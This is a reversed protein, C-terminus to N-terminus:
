FILFFTCPEDGMSYSTTNNSVLALEMKKAIGQLCYEVFSQFEELSSGEIPNCVYSWEIKCGNNNNIPVVPVTAVYSKLGLNNDGVEYTISQNIPDIMLLKEKAWLTTEDRKMECYRVLGPQGSVGQVRYCTHLNPFWKDLNCFDALLPWVEHAKSGKLQASAQSEWKPSLLERQLLQLLETAGLSCYPQLPGFRWTPSTLTTTASLNKM